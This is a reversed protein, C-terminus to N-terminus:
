FEAAIADGNGGIGSGDREGTEFISLLQNGCKEGAAIAAGERLIAKLADVRDLAGPYLERAAAAALLCHEEEDRAAGALLHLPRGHVGFAVHEVMVIAGGDFMM